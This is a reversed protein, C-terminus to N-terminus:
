SQLTRRREEFEEKDIDGRAFREELIQMASITSGGAGTGGGSRDTLARVVLVFGVVLVVLFVLWVLMWVWGAMPGMQMDM